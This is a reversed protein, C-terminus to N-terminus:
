KSATASGNLEQIKNRLVDMLGAVKGGKARIISTFEKRQTQSMSIGEVYVDIIKYSNPKGRVRWNVRIPDGGSPRRIETYILADKGPDAVADVVHLKEGSYQDFRDVYTIVVYDEFLQLYETKEDASATEM